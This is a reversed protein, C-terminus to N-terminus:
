KVSRGTYLETVAGGADKGSRVPAPVGWGGTWCTTATWGPPAIGVPATIGGPM